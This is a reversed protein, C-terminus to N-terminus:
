PASKARAWMPPENLEAVLASRREFPAGPVAAVTPALAQAAPPRGVVGALDIITAFAKNISAAASCENAASLCQGVPSRAAPPKSM